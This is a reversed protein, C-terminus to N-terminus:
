PAKRATASLGPILTSEDFSSPPRDFKWLAWIFPWLFRSLFWREILHVRSTLPRRRIWLGLIIGLTANRGGTASIHIEDFGSQELLRQLSFPTYRFEDFPVCHIPWIFPVTLFLIGGPKLVRSAEALVGSPNPCHELVETLIVSGVSDTDVPLRVGDWELDPTGYNNDPIDVGTYQTATGGKALILTKYPM